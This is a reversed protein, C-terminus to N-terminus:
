WKQQSRLVQEIVDRVCGDGGKKDSIYLCISKIEEAADAPCVPLGILQMVELDPLDDGMYLIESPNLQYKSCFDHFDHIKEYSKLYVDTIGLNNFRMRISESAAGSIIGIPYGLKVAKGLAFGDKTNMSRMMDGSPHLFVHSGSMVGDVDFIFAKVNKLLTKFHAM